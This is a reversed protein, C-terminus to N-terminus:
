FESGSQSDSPPQESDDESWWSDEKEVAKGSSGQDKKSEADADVEWSDDEEVAKGAPEEVAKSEEVIDEEHSVKVPSNTLIKQDKYFTMSPSPAGKVGDKTEEIKQKLSIPATQATAAVPDQNQRLGGMSFLATLLCLYSFLKRTNM